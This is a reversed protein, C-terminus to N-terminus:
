SKGRDEEFAGGELFGESCILERLFRTRSM